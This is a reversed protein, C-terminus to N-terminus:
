GGRQGSEKSLKIFDPINSLSIDGSPKSQKIVSLEGDSELVVAEVDEINLIGAKRVVFLIEERNIKEREMIVSLFKGRYMLLAPNHKMLHRLKEHTTSYKAVLSHISILVLFTFLGRLIVIDSLIIHAFVPGVTFPIIMDFTTMSSLTRKRFIKLLILITFYTIISATLTKMLGLWGGFFFSEVNM